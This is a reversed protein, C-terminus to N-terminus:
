NFLGMIFNKAEEDTINTEPKIQSFGNNKREEEKRLEEDLDFSKEVERFGRM